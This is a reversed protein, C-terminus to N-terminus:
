EHSLQGVEPIHGITAFCHLKNVQHFNIMQKNSMLVMNERLVRSYFKGQVDEM